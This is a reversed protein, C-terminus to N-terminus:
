ALEEFDEQYYPDMDPFYLNEIESMEDSIKEIYVEEEPLSQIYLLEKYHKLLNQLIEDESLTSLNKKNVYRCVTYECDRVANSLLHYKEKYERGSKGFRTRFIFKLKHIRLYMKSYFFDPNKFYLILLSLMILANLFLATCISSNMM